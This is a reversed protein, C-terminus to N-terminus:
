ETYKNYRRRRELCIEIEKNSKRRYSRLCSHISLSDSHHSFSAFFSPIRMSGLFLFLTRVHSPMDAIMGTVYRGVLCFIDTWVCEIIHASSVFFVSLACFLILSSRLLYFFLMCTKFCSPSYSYLRMIFFVSFINISSIEM